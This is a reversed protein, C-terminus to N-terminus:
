EVRLANIVDLRLIRRAPVYAAVLAGALVLVAAGAMTSLDRPAVGYLIGGLAPVAAWATAGGCLVGAAAVAVTRRLVDTMVASAHAGLAMRIGLDRASESVRQAVVGYVGILTLGMAVAAFLTLLLTSSRRSAVSGAVLDSLTRVNSLPLDPDLRRVVSRIGSTLVKADATGRVVLTLAPSPMQAEAVYVHPAPDGELSTQHVQGVVGVITRWNQDNTTRVRSGIPDRGSFFRTALVEDVVAVPAASAADREAFLRGARLPIGM